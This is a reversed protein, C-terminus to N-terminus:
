NVKYYLKYYKHTEAHEYELVPASRECPLM